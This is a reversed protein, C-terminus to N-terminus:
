HEHCLAIISAPIERLISWLARFHENQDIISPLFARNEGIHRLILTLKSSNQASNGSIKGHRFHDTERSFVKFERPIKSSISHIGLPNQEFVLFARSISSFARFHEFISSITSFAPNGAPMQRWPSRPDILIRRPDMSGTSGYATGVYFLTFVEPIDVESPRTVVASHSACDRRCHRPTM